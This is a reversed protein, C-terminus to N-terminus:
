RAKRVHFVAQTSGSLSRIEKEDADVIQVTIYNLLEKRANRLSLYTKEPPAFFLAGTERGDPTFQPIQYIIKSIGSQAGNYSKVQINPLRVFSAEANKEFPKVARFEVANQGVVLYVPPDPATISYQDVNSYDQFGLMRAMSPRQANHWMGNEQAGSSMKDLYLSHVYPVGKSANLAEYPYAGYSDASQWSNSGFTNNDVQTILGSIPKSRGEPFNYNQVVQKGAVFKTQNDRRKIRLNSYADSGPTFIKTTENYDPFLYSYDNNVFSTEYNALEINGSGFSFQPYLAETNLNIPKLSYQPDNSLNYGVIQQYSAKGKDKFWVNINTGLAEFRVGDFSANFGAKTMQNGTIAGGSDWYEIEQHLFRGGMHQCSNFIRVVGDDILVGYDFHAKTSSRNPAVDNDEDILNNNKPFKFPYMNKVEYNIGDDTVEYQQHPRSLGVLIFEGASANATNFDCYGESLGFPKDTIQGICKSDKAGITSDAATRTIVGTAINYTFGASTEGGGVGGPRRLQFYAKSTVHSRSNTGSASAKQTFKIKMGDEDGATDIQLKTTAQKWLQPHCYQAEISKKIESVYGDVSYSGEKVKIKRPYQLAHQDKPGFQDVRDYPDEGFYHLFYNKAGVNINGSRTIKISELAIESDPDIELPSRFHNTFHSPKESSIETPNEQLRSTTVILSM